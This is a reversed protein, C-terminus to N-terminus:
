LRCGRDNAGAVVRWTRRKCGFDVQPKEGQQFIFLVRINAKKDRFHGEAIARNFVGFSVRSVYVKQSIALVYCANDSRFHVVNAHFPGTVMFTGDGGTM